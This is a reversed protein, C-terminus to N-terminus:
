FMAWLIDAHGGFQGSKPFARQPLSRSDNKLSAEVESEVSLNLHQTDNDAARIQQRM